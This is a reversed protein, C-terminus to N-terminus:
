FRFGVGISVLVPDLSIERKGPESRREFDYSADMYTLSGGVSWRHKRGVLFDVGARAGWTVESDDRTHVTTWDDDDWWDHGYGDHVSVGEYRNFAVLPGAYLDVAGDDVFHFLAGLTLSGTSLMDVDTGVHLAKGVGAAVHFDSAMAMVGLEVGLLPSVRRELNIHVGGGGGVSLNVAGPNVSAGTHGTTDAALLGARLRWNRDRLPRETGNVPPEESHAPTAGAALLLFVGIALRRITTRNM